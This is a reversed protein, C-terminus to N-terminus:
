MTTRPCNLRNSAATPPRPQLCRNSAAIDVAETWRRGVDNPPLQAIEHFDDDTAGVVLRAFERLTFTYRSASPLLQVVARRHDRSMGLVLDAQRIQAEILQRAAHASPSGGYRVSLAAAEDPMKDGEMAITGASSVTLDAWDSLGARLLQEALPSRCINGSCVTLIAFGPM